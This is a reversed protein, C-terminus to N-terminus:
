EQNTRTTMLLAAKLKQYVEAPDPAPKTDFELMFDALEFAARDKPRWINALTVAIVAARMDARVEGWPELSYDAMWQSFEYSSM